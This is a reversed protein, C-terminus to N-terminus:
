ISFQLSSFHIRIGRRKSRINTTRNVVKAWTEFETEPRIESFGEGSINKLNVRISSGFIM